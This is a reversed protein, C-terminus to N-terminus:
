RSRPEAAARAQGAEARDLAVRIKGHEGSGTTPLRLWSLEYRDLIDNKMADKALQAPNNEHHKFGDVEVALLPENTVRNYVVFDVSARNGVYTAQARTLRSRDALLNSVLVQSVATLHQYRPEALIEQLVTWIIDESREPIVGRLRAALARLRPSYEQYLLDFVSLVASTAVGEGLNQYRIYGVLDRIHRSTPMMAHNTVLIFRRIARSVAVNIMRPDDVFPLGSRGSATEDLVTSLVIVPKQRGQFKHVTDAVSGLLAGSVREAQLRYPTTVGIESDAVGLCHDRVVELAIVDVERQNFRGGRDPRRMHTGEATPVVLLPRDSGSSTYPILQEDYFKKNCFGIIAPDCRYHERLLTHPLRDGHLQGLASLLNHERCDYIPDPPELEAAAAPAIPALQKQDGVVVLNRCASMALAAVLLNVQSAEDIILYDLLVGAAISARLSHCTSLLVPYDAAFGSFTGARRYTDEQYTTRARSRYRRGLDARLAQLSLTQHERVLQDFDARRLTTEIREQEATLEAIRKDYYARQLRLVVSTDGPDLGRLSGYRFYRTIRRLLGPRAGLHELESEALYDLIRGASRRLLPLDTLEPLDAQQLHQEFHRLELQYAALEQRLEARTREAAQLQRLRRDLTALRELDPTPPVQQMLASVQTNREAQGAFFEARKERRGLNAIVHGFGLETLKDRVNDVATNGASVVGVTKGEVTIINAILNLITETKGTGPPGEIVSVSRTLGHEVAQRQSINCRFPFIPAAHLERATIAGGTLFAGLASEPHVFTLREYAPKLPDDAPVRRVIDRWYRLVNSAALERTPSTLVRVQNAPYTSYSEGKQRRYFIRSWAGAGARDVFTVIETASEWIVGNVEARDGEALRVPDREARLILVRSLGYPYAKGSRFAIEVRGGGLFTHRAVKPTEDVFPQAQNQRILM